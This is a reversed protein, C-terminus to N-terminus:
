YHLSCLPVHSKTLWYECEEHNAEFPFWATREEVSFVPPKLPFYAGPCLEYINELGGNGGHFLAGLGEPYYSGHASGWYVLCLQLLLM